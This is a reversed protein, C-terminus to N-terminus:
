LFTRLFLPPKYNSLSTTFFFFFHGTQESLDKRHGETGRLARPEAQSGTVQIGENRVRVARDM